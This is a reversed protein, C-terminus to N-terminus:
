AKVAVGKRRRLFVWTIFGLLVVGFIIMGWETLTPIAEAEELAAENTFVAQTDGGSIVSYQVVVGGSQPLPDTWLPLSDNPDGSLTEVITPEWPLSMVMSNDPTLSDLPILTDTWAWSRVIEWPPGPDPPVPIIDPPWLIDAVPCEFTGVWTQFIMPIRGVQVGDFTWLAEEARVNAHCKTFTVGFHSKKSPLIPNDPDSWTIRIRGPGLNQCGGSAVWETGNWVTGWGHYYEDISSCTLNDGRVILDFDNVDQGTSNRLTFNSLTRFVEAAQTQSVTLGLIMATATFLLIVKSRM